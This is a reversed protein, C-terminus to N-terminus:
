PADERKVPTGKSWTTGDEWVEQKWIPVQKKLKDILFRGAEFSEARHATVVQILVSAQGPPVEGTAHHIRVALCAFRDAAESALDNLVQLALPRYAEYSLKKLKGHRPHTECRTRGLFVCEGGSPQPYPDFPLAEVPHDLIQVDIIPTSDSM